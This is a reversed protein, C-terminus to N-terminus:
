GKGKFTDEKLEVVGVAVWGIVKVIVVDRVPRVASLKGTRLIEHEVRVRNEHRKRFGYNPPIIFPSFRRRAAQAPHHM